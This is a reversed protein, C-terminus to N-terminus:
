DAVLRCLTLVGDKAVDDHLLDGQSFLISIVIFNKLIDKQPPENLFKKILKSQLKHVIEEMKRRELIVCSATREGGKLCVIAKYYSKLSEDTAKEYVDLLFLYNLHSFDAMNKVTIGCARYYKRRNREAKEAYGFFKADQCCIYRNLVQAKNIQSIWNRSNKHQPYSLFSEIVHEPYFGCKLCSVAKEKIFTRM